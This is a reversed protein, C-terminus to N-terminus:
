AVQSLVSLKLLLLSSSSGKASVHLSMCLVTNYFRGTDWMAELLRELFSHIGGLGQAIGASTDQMYQTAYFQLLYLQELEQM